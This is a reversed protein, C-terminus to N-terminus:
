WAVAGYLLKSQVLAMYFARLVDKSPGWNHAAIANLKQLRTRAQQKIDNVHTRVGSASQLTVGLLKPVKDEDLVRGDLQLRQKYRGFLTYKTKSASVEMFHEKFWREIINLGEQLTETIEENTGQPILALDNAFFVHKLKPVANLEKSMFNM